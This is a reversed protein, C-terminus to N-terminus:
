FEMAKQSFHLTIRLIALHIGTSTTTAWCQFQTFIKSGCFLKSVHVARNDQIKKHTKKKNQKKFHLYTAMCCMACWFEFGSQGAHQLHLMSSTVFYDLLWVLVTHMKDTSESKEERVSQFLINITFIIVDYMSYYMKWSTPNSDFINVLPTQSSLLFCM